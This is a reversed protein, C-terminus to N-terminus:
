RKAGQTRTSGVAACVGSLCRLPPPPDANSPSTSTATSSASTWAGTPTRSPLAGERELGGGGAVRVVGGLEADRPYTGSM